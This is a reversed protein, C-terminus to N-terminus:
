CTVCVCVVSFLVGSVCACSLFLAGVGWVFVERLCKVVSHIRPAPRTHILLLPSLSARNCPPLYAYICIAAAATFVLLRDPTFLSVPPSPPVIAPLYIYM